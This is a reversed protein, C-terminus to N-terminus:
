QGKETQPKLRISAELAGNKLHASTLTASWIGYQLFAHPYGPADLMRIHDYLENLTAKKPLESQDPTRRHFYSPTGEQPIPEPENESIEQIMAM